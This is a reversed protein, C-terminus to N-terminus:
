GPIKQKEWFLRMAEIKDDTLNYKINHTLYTLARSHTPKYKAVAELTHKVGFELAESLEQELEMGKPTAVWVAFVFPLGTLEIWEKALDINYKFKGELEFVKDGICVIAEGEQINEPNIPLNEIWIVKKEIGWKERALIRVLRVSTRSHADLYIKSINNLPTNSLLEVTRVENEASICFKTIIKCNKLTPIVAIPVLAVDAHNNAIM